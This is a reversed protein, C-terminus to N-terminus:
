AFITDMFRQFTQGVNCLGFPMRLFEFTGFPTVIATKCIDAENVPVQYYGKRLDLKSFVTCGSLRATLDGINPCSYRDPKTQLNLRRFDGCPRWSGDPKKVMHLPSSWQSSSRRIVGQREMDAFEKKAAALKDPDLRRYKVAVPRGETEIHHKVDHVVEPLVASDSVVTPYKKLLQSYPGAAAVAAAVSSGNSSLRHHLASPPSGTASLRHHLAAPASSHVPTPGQVAAAALRVGLLAFTSGAPPVELALRVGSETQVCFQKLNVVLANSELFDAGLLPFSVAALLFHWTFSRGGFIVIM